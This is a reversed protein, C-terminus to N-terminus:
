LRNVDITFQTKCGSQRIFLLQIRERKVFVHYSMGYMHIQNVCHYFNFLHIWVCCPLHSRGIAAGLLFFKGNRLSGIILLYM